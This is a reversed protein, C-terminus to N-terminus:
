AALQGHRELLRMLVSNAHTFNSLQDQLQYAWKEGHFLNNRFRWVIMLLTLLRDRPDNNTGDLVSKVIAPQDTPRLNLHPFHHTFTGNAFYRQRFYALEATHQDADLTGAKSWEDAKTCILDARAFNGMIQSEFLSWLFTFTVIAARDEEPLAQFGPAKASLWQMTM